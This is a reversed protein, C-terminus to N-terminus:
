KVNFCEGKIKVIEGSIVPYSRTERISQLATITGQPCAEWVQDVIKRAYDSTYVPNGTRPGMQFYGIMEAIRGSDRTAAKGGVAGIVAAADDINVGMESAKIDIPTRTGARNDIDGVQVHHLIACGTHFSLSLCLVLFVRM